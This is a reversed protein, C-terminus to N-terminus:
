GSRRASFPITRYGKRVAWTFSPRNTNDKEPVLIYDLISGKSRNNGPHTIADGKHPVWLLHVHQQGFWTLAKEPPENFDGMFIVPAPKGLKHLERLKTVIDNKVQRTMAPDCCPIYTCVFIVSTTKNSVLVWLDNYSSCRLVNWHLSKKILMAIGLKGRETQQPCMKAVNYESDLFPDPEPFVRTEQLACVDINNDHCLKRVSEAKQAISNVNLTAVRWKVKERKRAAHM